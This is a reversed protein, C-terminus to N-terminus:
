DNVKIFKQAGSHWNDGELRIFYTGAPLESVSYHLANIGEIMNIQKTLLNKGDVNLITIHASQNTKAFVSMNIQGASSVPNPYIDLIDSVTGDFCSTNIRIVESYEYTGDLDVQKLRYYNQINPNDDTFDYNVLTQSNGAANVRGIESFNIGNASREVVFFHSNTETATQWNLQTACDREEGTFSTLEVPLGCVNPFCPAINGYNSEATIVRVSVGNEIYVEGVFTPPFIAQPHFQLDLCALDDLVDFGMRGVAIWRDDTAMVGDGGQLEVNYSVVTDLSGTLNHPSYLTFGLPGGGGPIFGTLLEEAIVPNALAERNFSFRYNQESMFFSSGEAAKVEIDVFVSYPADCIANETINFRVESVGDQAYTNFVSLVFVAILYLKAKGM